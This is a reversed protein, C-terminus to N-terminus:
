IKKRNIIGKIDRQTIKVHSKFATTPTNKRFQILYSYSNYERIIISILPVNRDNLMLSQPTGLDAGNTLCANYAFISASYNIHFHPLCMLKRIKAYNQIYTSLDLLCFNVTIRKKVINLLM